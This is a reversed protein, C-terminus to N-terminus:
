DRPARQRISSAPTWTQVRERRVSRWVGLGTGVLATAVEMMQAFPWLRPGSGLWASLVGAAVLWALWGGLGAAVLGTGIFLGSLALNYIAVWRFFKHSLYKYLSLPSLRRIKPWLLRHVNFSSCAIRVKRSFEERSNTVSKEFALVEPARVVRHGELLASISVFIDDFVDDPAARYCQRRMAFISGDAGMVSGTESELRKILEETRWYLSGVQATANEDHNTYILHGCVCGVEPDAFYPRMKVIAEPDITVNADTFVLISGKALAVLRNMGHTKGKREVGEVLVFQDGYERLIEATRDSGADVYILIELSGTRRRLALLNDAKERIVAEENYACLCIAFSEEAAPARPNLPVQKFRAILWLSVPYSIFPHQALVFFGCGIVLLAASLM